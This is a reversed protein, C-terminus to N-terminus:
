RGGRVLRVYLPHSRTYGYAYGHNFSVAWAYHSLGSHVTGSWYDRPATNPFYATAISPGVRGFDVLGELEKVTPLRWDDYGCLRMARVAAVFHGTSCPLDGLSAGCSQATGANGGTGDHWVYRWARDRPGGDATKVEWVLGTVNDVVCAAPNLVTFDFGAAGGGAKELRGAAALADRGHHVDQGQPLAAACRDHNGAPHDACFLIGTDNLPRPAYDGALASLGVGSAPLALATLCALRLPAPFSRKLGRM